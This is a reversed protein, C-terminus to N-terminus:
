MRDTAREGSSVRTAAPVLLPLTSTQSRLLEGGIWMAVSLCSILTGPDPSETIERAKEGSPIVRKEAVPPDTCAQRPSSEAVRRYVGGGDRKLRSM